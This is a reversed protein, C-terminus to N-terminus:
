NVYFFGKCNGTFSKLRDIRFNQTLTNLRQQLPAAGVMEQLKNVQSFKAVVLQQDLLAKIYLAVSANKHPRINQINVLM